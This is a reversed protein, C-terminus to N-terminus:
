LANVIKYDPPTAKRFYEPEKGDLLAKAYRLGNCFGRDVESRQGTASVGVDLMTLAKDILTTKEDLKESLAAIEADKAEIERRLADCNQRCSSDLAYEGFVVFWIRDFLSMQKNM